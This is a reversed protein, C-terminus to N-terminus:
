PLGAQRLLDEIESVGEADLLHPPLYPDSHLDRLLVQRGHDTCRPFADVLLQFGQAVLAEYPDASSRDLDQVAFPENPFGADDRFGSIGSEGHRPPDRGLAETRTSPYAVYGDAHKEV